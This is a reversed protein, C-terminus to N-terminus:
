LNSWWGPMPKVRHGDPNLFHSYIDYAMRRANPGTVKRGRLVDGIIQALRRPDAHGKSLQFDGTLNGAKDKIPVAGALYGANGLAKTLDVSLAKNQTANKPNLSNLNKLIQSNWLKIHAADMLGALQTKANGQQIGSYIKAIDAQTLASKLGLSPAAEMMQALAMKTNLVDKANSAKLGSNYQKIGLLQQLKDAELARNQQAIDQNTQLAMAAKAGQAQSLQLALQLAANQNMAQVRQSSTAQDAKLLGPVLNDYQSQSNNIAKAMAADNVGAAAVSGSGQNASGGISNALDAAINQIDGPLSGSMKADGSQAANAADVIQKYWNAVDAMNQAGQRQQVQQQAELGQIIPDYQAAALKDGLTPDYPTTIDNLLQGIQTPNGNKDALSIPTGQMSALLKDFQGGGLGLQALMSNINMAQNLPDNTQDPTLAAGLGAATNKISQGIKALTNPGSRAAPKAVPKAAPKAAPRKALPAMAAPGRTVKEGKPTEKVTVSGNKTFGRSQIGFGEYAGKAQRPAEHPNYRAKVYRYIGTGVTTALRGSRTVRYPTGYGYAKVVPDAHPDWPGAFGYGYPDFPNGAM